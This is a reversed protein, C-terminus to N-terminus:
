KQYTAAYTAWMVGERISKIAYGAAELDADSLNNILDILEAGLTKIQKVVAPEPNKTFRVMAEGKTLDHPPSSKNTDM